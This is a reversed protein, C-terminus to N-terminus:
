CCGGGTGGGIGGGPEGSAGLRIGSTQPRRQPASVKSLREAVAEFVDAVAVNEKASTEFFLLGEEEAYARAEAEDVQRSESLDVKNGVLAIVLDPNNVNAKLEGVWKKAREFTAPSTIDYVCVSASSSRYYMPALSHYREQGATDWLEFKINHDQSVVTFFSAGITSEQNDFYSGKVYRHVLSTKGCAMEGLLVLKCVTPSDMTSPPRTRSTNHRRSRQNTKKLELKSSIPIFASSRKTSTANLPCQEHARRSYVEEISRLRPSLVGRTALISSVEADTLKTSTTVPHEDVSM